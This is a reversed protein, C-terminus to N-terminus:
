CRAPAARRRSNSRPRASRAPRSARRSRELEVPLMKELETGRYAAPNYRPGAIFLCSGGFKSVFEGLWEIPADGLEKAGVDGLIVLDYKFLEEKTAPFAKVYPSGEGDAIRRTARSQLWCKVEIRRDRLLVSQLYRFEWRPSEEVCCCRSRATSSRSGSRWPTTTRRRRTTARSSPRACNSNASRDEAHFAAGGDARRRRHLRPRQTAVVEDGLELTIKATEGRLGQGRVRVTVPLEDKVFAVEQTFLNAVIIDRPSTIGVGYIYLPVGEARALRAAELPQPASITRATPPSSSARWRSAASARRAARARRRRDRDDPKEPRAQGGVRAPRARDQRRRTSPDPAAATAIEALAAGFTFTSLDYEKAFKALLGLDENSAARRAATGRAAGAEARAQKADLPQDLGKRRDLEGQAMAARM